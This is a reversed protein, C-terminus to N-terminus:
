KRAGLREYLNKWLDTTANWSYTSEILRRLANGHADREDISWQLAQNLARELSTSEPKILIGGNEIWKKGLGTVHTTIVPTRCAAAELNVLGIVESHSPLCFIWANQYLEWKQNGRVAGLFQVRREIGAEKVLQQLHAMYAAERPESFGAIKLNIGTPNLNAFSKILLDIGKVPHLRGLFLIYPDHHDSNLSRPHVSNDPTDKTAIDGLIRDISELDLSHPIVEIKLSGRRFDGKIFYKSLTEAEITSIAHIVSANRFAPYALLHWYINKKLQNLWSQRHWIWPELMGHVSLVFPKGQQRAARAASWQVWMWIGHLHIVDAQKVAQKLKRDGGPVYRWSRGLGSPPLSIEPVSDPLPITDEGTNVLSQKITNPLRALQFILSDVANTIGTNQTSHDETVQLLHTM